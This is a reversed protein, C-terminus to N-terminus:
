GSSGHGSPFRPALYAVTAFIASALVYAGVVLWGSNVLASGLAAALLFLLPPGLSHTLQSTPVHLRERSVVLGLVLGYLSALSLAPASLAARVSRVGACVLGAAIALAQVWPPTPEHSGILSTMLIWTLLSTIARTVDIFVELRKPLPIHSSKLFAPLEKVLAPTLSSWKIERGILKFFADPSSEYSTVSRALLGRYGARMLKFYLLLDEGPECPFGGVSIVASTRLVANHGCLIFSSSLRSDFFWGVEKAMWGEVSLIKSQVFAVGEDDFFGLVAEYFGKPVRSDYDFIGFYEYRKGYLTLWRNLAEGKNKARPVLYVAGYRRALELNHRAVRRDTSDDLIFVDSERALTSLLSESVADNKVTIVSAVRRGKRRTRRIPAARRAEALAAFTTVAKICLLLLLLLLCGARVSGSLVDYLFESM